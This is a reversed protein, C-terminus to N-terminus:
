GQRSRRACPPSRWRSPRANLPRRRCAGIESRSATCAYAPLGEDWTTLDVFCDHGQRELLAVEDQTPYRGFRLAGDLLSASFDDANTAQM